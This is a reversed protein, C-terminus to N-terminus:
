DVLKKILEVLLLPSRVLLSIFLVFISVFGYRIAVTAVLWVAVIMWIWM